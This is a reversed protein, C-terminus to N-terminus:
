ALANRMAELESTDEKRKKARKIAKDIEKKLEDGEHGYGCSPCAFNEDLQGCDNPCPREDMYAKQKADREDTMVKLQKSIKSLHKREAAIAKTFEELHQESCLNAGYLDHDTFGSTDMAEWM